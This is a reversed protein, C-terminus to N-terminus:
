AIEMRDGELEITRGQFSMTAKPSRRLERFLQDMRRTLESDFPGHPPRRAAGGWLSPQPLGRVYESFRDLFANFTQTSLERLPTSDLPDAFTFQLAVEGDSLPRSLLLIPQPRRDFQQRTGTESLAVERLTAQVVRLLSSIHSVSLHGPDLQIALLDQHTESRREGSM